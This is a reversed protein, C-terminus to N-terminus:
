VIKTYDLRFTTLWRRERTRSATNCFFQQIKYITGSYVWLSFQSKLVILFVEWKVCQCNWFIWVKSVGDVGRESETFSRMPFILILYPNGWRPPEWWPETSIFRVLMWLSEPKIGPRAWHTLSGANSHAITYTVSTAWTQCQQPQTM